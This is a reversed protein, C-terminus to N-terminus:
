KPFFDLCISWKTVLDSYLFYLFFLVLHGKLQNENKDHTKMKTTERSETIQQM